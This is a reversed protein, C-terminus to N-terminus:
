LSTFDTTFEIRQEEELEEKSMMEELQSTRLKGPTYKLSQCGDEESAAGIVCHEQFVPRSEAEEDTLVEPAEEMGPVAEPLLLPATEEVPIAEPVAEDQEEQPLAEAAPDKIDSKKADPRVQITWNVYETGPQEQLVGINETPTVLTSDTQEKIRTNREATVVEDAKVKDAKHILGTDSDKSENAKETLGTKTLECEKKYPSASIPKKSFITSAFVIALLTFLIAPVVYSMDFAVDM